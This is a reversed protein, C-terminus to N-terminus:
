ESALGLIEALTSIFLRSQVTFSVLHHSVIFKVVITIVMVIIGQFPIQVM